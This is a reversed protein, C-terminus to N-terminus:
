MEIDLNNEKPKNESLAIGSVKSYVSALEDKKPKLKTQQMSTQAMEHLNKLITHNVPEPAPPAPESQTALTHANLANLEAIADKDKSTWGKKENLKARHKRAQKRAAIKDVKAQKTIKKNLRKKTAKPLVAM